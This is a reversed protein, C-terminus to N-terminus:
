CSCNFAGYSTRLAVPVPIGTVNEFKDWLEPPIDPTNVNLTTYSEGDTRVYDELAVILSRYDINCENNAFDELWKKDEGSLREVVRRVIADEEEPTM